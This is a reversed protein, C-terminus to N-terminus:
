LGDVSVLSGGPSWVIIRKSVMWHYWHGLLYWGNVRKSFIWNDEYHGDLSALTRRSVM